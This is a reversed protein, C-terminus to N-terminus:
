LSCKEVLNKINTLCLDLYNEPVPAKKWPHTLASSSNIRALRVDYGEGRLAAMVEEASGGQSGVGPILMPIEKSAYYRAIDKLELINTAGVVAGLGPHDKALSAILHAVSIYLPYIEKEDIPDIIHLNQLVAGGPNSTRNLIYVGKDEYAFPLISDTGMYPSITTASAGWKDFAEIAYNLSSRAIDGRKSDLIVPISPFFGDLMDLVDCLAQSGSFDDERPNDLASYYGINPKFAAPTVGELRMRHFLEDFFQNIRERASGEGPLAEIQPDLGMCVINNTEEASKRLIDIYSM